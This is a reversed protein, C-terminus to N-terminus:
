KGSRDDLIERISQSIDTVLQATEITKSEGLREVLKDTFALIGTHEGNYATRGQDTLRIYIQRRDTQSRERLIYGKKELTGILQNMQSRLLRTTGCLETATLPSGPREQEQQSVLGCILAENFTMGTVLRKNWVVSSLDLWARVLAEGAKQRDNM